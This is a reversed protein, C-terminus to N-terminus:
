EEPLVSLPATYMSKPVCYVTMGARVAPVVFATFIRMVRHSGAVAAVHIRALLRRDPGKGRAYQSEIKTSKPTSLPTWDTGHVGDRGIPFSPVHQHHIVVGVNEM